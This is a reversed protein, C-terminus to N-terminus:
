ITGDQGFINLKLLPDFLHLSRGDIFVHMTRGPLFEEERTVMFRVLTGGSSKGVILSRDGMNEVLEIVLEINADTYRRQAVHEVYYINHPRIGVTVKRGAMSIIRRSRDKNLRLFGISTKVGATRGEISIEGTFFNMPPSGIFEATFMTAPHDYLQKPTEYQEIIGNNLLAIRESMTMAEIQNHTVYIITKGVKRHINKLEEIATERLAADLNSLPEDLLLVDPDLVLARALAVRQRQGGSVQKPLRDELGKLHLMNVIWTLKQEIKIPAIRKLRLGFIINNRISMHPFLAYSQFVMALNRKQAPLATYRKGGIVIEGGDVKELGAIMRLLTTKGCGSPGLLTVFEGEKIALNLHDVVVHNGYKKTLSKLVVDAM